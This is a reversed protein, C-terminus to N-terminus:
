VIDFRRNEYTNFANIVNTKMKLEISDNLLRWSVNSLKCIKM